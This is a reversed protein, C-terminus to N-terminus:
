LINVAAYPPRLFHSSSFELFNFTHKKLSYWPLLSSNMDRASAIPIEWIADALLM